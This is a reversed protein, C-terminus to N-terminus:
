MSNNGLEHYPLIVTTVFKKESDLYQFKVQGHLLYVAQKINKIGIGHIEKDPKNSELFDQRHINATNVIRIIIYNTENQKFTIYISGGGICCSEVANELINYLITILDYLHIYCLDLDQIEDYIFKIKSTDLKEIINCLVLDLIKNGSCNQNSLKISAEFMSQLYQKMQEYDNNLLLTNLINIHKNFDHIYRKNDSYRQDILKYYLENLKDKTKTENLEINLRESENIKYMIYLVIFNSFFLMIISIRVYINIPNFDEIIGYILIIYSIPMVMVPILSKFHITNSLLSKLPFYTFILLMKLVSNFIIFLFTGIITNLLEYYFNNLFFFSMIESISAIVNYLVSFVISTKINIGFIFNSILMIMFFFVVFNLTKIELMNIMTMILIIPLIILKKLKVTNTNSSDKNELFKFVISVDIINSLILLLSNMNM